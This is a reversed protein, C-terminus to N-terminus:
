FDFVFYYFELDFSLIVITFNIFEIVIFNIVIIIIVVVVVITFKIIFKGKFLYFSLFLFFYGILRLSYYFFSSFAMIKSM